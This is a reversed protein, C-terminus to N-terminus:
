EVVVDDVEVIAHRDAGRHHHQLGSSARLECRRQKNKRDQCNHRQSCQVSAPVIM